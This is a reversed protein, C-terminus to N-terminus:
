LNAGTRKPARCLRHMVQVFADANSPSVPWEVTILVPGADSDPSFISPPGPWHRAATVDLRAEPLPLARVSFGTAIVLGAAPILFAAPLNTNAILGWGIAGLAQGDTFVFQLYAFARARTWAPLLM